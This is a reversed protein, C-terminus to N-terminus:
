ARPKPHSLATPERRSPSQAEAGRDPVRRIAILRTPLLNYPVAKM